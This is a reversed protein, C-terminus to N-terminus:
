QLLVMRRTEVRSGVQLRYLYVGSGVDSGNQNATNLDLTKYGMLRQVPDQYDVGINFPKM